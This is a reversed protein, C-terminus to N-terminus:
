NTLYAAWSASSDSSKAMQFLRNRQKIKSLLSHNIWPSSPSPSSYVLKSPISKHMIRVFLEKFILWSSDVDNNPLDDWSISELLDNVLDFNAQNYLWVSCPPSPLPFSPCKLPLSLLISCHDLSSVPPLVDFSFSTLSSSLFVLDIISSSGSHSFHTPQDVVQNLSFSNSIANLMQLSPSESGVNVNFDGLLVLNFLLSPYTNSLTDLLLDLDADPASPPRYYTGVQGM